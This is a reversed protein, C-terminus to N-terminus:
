YSDIRDRRDSRAARGRCHKEDLVALREAENKWVKRWVGIAYLNRGKVLKRPDLKTKITFTHQQKKAGYSESIVVGEVITYNVIVNALKGFRNIAKRQWNREIYIVSDGLCVDGTTNIKYARTAQDFAQFKAEIFDRDQWNDVNKILSSFQAEFAKLLKM